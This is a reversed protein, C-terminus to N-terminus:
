DTPPLISQVNPLHLFSARLSEDSIHDFIYQLIDRSEARLSQAAAPDPETEALAALIQWLDWRANHAKAEARAQELLAREEQPRNQARRVRSQLYLTRPIHRRLSTREQEDLFDALLTDARAYEQEALALEAEALFLRGEFFPNTNEQDLGAFLHKILERATDLEGAAVRLHALNGGAYGSLIHFHEEAFDVSLQALELGRALDGLDGVLAGLDSRAAVLVPPLIDEGMQIASQMTQIAQDVQGLEVYANGVWLHSFVEGWPNGISRSIRQAELSGAISREYDGRMLYIYTSRGWNDALMALNNQEAFLERAERLSVDAEAQKGLMGYPVILDNLIFAQQERLDLERAISLAQEGYEIALLRRSVAYNYFLMLNWLVKAEATRDGLERALELGRNSLTLALELNQYQTPISIITARAMLADLEMHRDGRQSALTQMEEYNKLALDNRANLEQARGRKLYLERLSTTGNQKETGAFEIALTYHTIAEANAYVRSAADGARTAFALAKARDGAEIYHQELLPANEDLRDPYEREIIEAAARHLRQREQKLLTSQVTDQVMVHKFAFALDQETLRRVFDTTELLALQRDLNKRHRPSSNKRAPRPSKAKLRNKPIPNGIKRGIYNLATRLFIGSGFTSSAFVRM